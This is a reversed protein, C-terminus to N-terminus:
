REYLLVGERTVAFPLTNPTSRDEEFESKPFMAVDAQFLDQRLTRWTARPDFVSDDADDPVVIALDWDSSPHAAGRARSGLLWVQLPSFTDRIRRVLPEIAKTDISSQPTRGPTEDGM